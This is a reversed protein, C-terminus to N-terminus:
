RTLIKKLSYDTYSKDTFKPPEAEWISEGFGEHGGEGFGGDVIEGDFRPGLVSFLIKFDYRSM